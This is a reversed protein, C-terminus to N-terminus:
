RGLEREVDRLHSVVGATGLPAAPGCAGGDPVIFFTRVGAAIASEAGLASDEVAISAGPVADCLTLGTRYCEPDPKGNAVMEGGVVHLVLSNLGTKGLWRRAEDSRASTVVCTAWGNLRAAHLLQAAGPAPQVTLMGRALLDRYLSLLDDASSGEIHHAQQLHAVIDDLRLGNLTNFEANSGEGERGVSSLFREYVQSLAGLSDALTGDLDM